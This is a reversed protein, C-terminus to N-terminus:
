QDLVIDPLRCPKQRSKGVHYKLYASVFQKLAFFIHRKLYSITDAIVKKLASAGECPLAKAKCPYTAYCKHIM